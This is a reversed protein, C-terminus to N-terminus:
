QSKPGLLGLVDLLEVIPIHSEDFADSLVRLQIQLDRTIEVTTRKHVAASPIAAESKSGVMEAKRLEKLQKIRADFLGREDAAIKGDDAIDSIGRVTEDIDRTLRDIKLAASELNRPSLRDGRGNGLPCQHSCFYNPLEPASYSDAM